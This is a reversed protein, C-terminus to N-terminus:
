PQAGGPEQICFKSVFWGYSQPPHIKIENCHTTNKSCWEMPGPVSKFDYLFLLCAQLDPAPFYCCLKLFNMTFRGVCLSIILNMLHRSFSVDTDINFTSEKWSAETM